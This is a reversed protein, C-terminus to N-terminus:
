EGYYRFSSAFGSTTLVQKSKGTKPNYSILGSANKSYNCFIIEDKYKYIGMTYSNSLPIDMLRKITKDYLDIEVAINAFATYLGKKGETNYAPILCYGYAKGKGAYYVSQLLSAKNSEGEISVKSIDFIYSQDFETEGSKIRLLGSNHFFGFGGLCMMYIDDNEDMFLSSEIIPRTPASMGSTKETIMKLLEDKKTDIIAIDAYPRKPDPYVNAGGQTLGVYLLGDRLIMISPDPNNDGVGLNTLDIEGTKKMTQPNFTWVKGLGAMSLYAKTDSEFVMNTAGSNAYLALSAKKVFKNGVRTYKQLQNVSEGMYSPFIYIDDGKFKPYNLPMPLANANDVSQGGVSDLLQVYGRGSHTATNMVTTGVLFHGNNKHPTTPEPTPEVTESDSCAGLAIFMALALFQGIGKKM